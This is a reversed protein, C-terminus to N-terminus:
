LPGSGCITCISISEISQNLVNVERTMSESEKPQNSECIMSESERPQDSERTMSESEKSQNSECIMSESERPQDSERTVSESEKPKDSECVEVTLTSVGSVSPSVAPWFGSSAGAGTVELRGSLFACLFRWSSEALFDYKNAANSVAPKQESGFIDVIWSIIRSNFCQGGVPLILDVQPMGCLLDSLLSRLPGEFCRKLARTYRDNKVEVVLEDDGIELRIPVEKCEIM